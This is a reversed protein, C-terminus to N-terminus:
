KERTVIILEEGEQLKREAVARDFYIGAACVYGEPLSPFSALAQRCKTIQEDEKPAAVEILNGNPALAIAPAAGPQEGTKQTTKKAM